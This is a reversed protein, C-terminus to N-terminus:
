YVKNKLTRKFVDYNKEIEDLKLINNFYVINAMGGQIHNDLVDEPCKDKNKDKEKSYCIKEKVHNLSGFQMKSVNSKIYINNKTAILKSNIFIDANSGNYNIVINNWKQLTIPGNYLVQKNLADDEFIVKIYGKNSNFMLIPNWNFNLFPIYDDYSESNTNKTGVFYFWSSICFKSNNVIGKIVKNNSLSTETPLLTQGNTTLRINLSKGFLLFLLILSISILVFLFKIIERKDNTGFISFKGPIFLSLFEKNNYILYISLGIISFFTIILTAIKSQAPFMKFIKIVFYLLLSLVFIMIGSSLYGTATLNPINGNKLSSVKDKLLNIHEDTYLFKNINGEAGKLVNEVISTDFNSEKGHKYRNYSVISFLGIIYYTFPFFLVIFSKLKNSTRTRSRYDDINENKKRKTKNYIYSYIYITISIYILTLSIGIKRNNNVKSLLKILIGTEVFKGINKYNLSGLKFSGNNEKLIPKTSKHLPEDPIEIPWVPQKRTIPDEFFGFINNSLKNSARNLKSAREEGPTNEGINKIGGDITRLINQFKNGVIKRRDDAGAQNLERIKSGWFPWTGNLIANDYNDWGGYLIRYYPDVQEFQNSSIINRNDPEVLYELLESFSKNSLESIYDIYNNFNVIDLNNAADPLLVEGKTLLYNLVDNSTTSYNTYLVRKLINEQKKRESESNKEETFYNIDIKKEWDNEDVVYNNEKRPKLRNHHGKSSVFEINSSPYYVREQGVGGRLQESNRNLKYGKEDYWLDKFKINKVYETKLKSELLTPDPFQHILLIIQQQIKRIEKSEGNDNVKNLDDILKNVEDINHSIDNEIFKPQFGIGDAWEITKINFTENIKANKLRKELLRFAFLIIGSLVIFSIIISGSKLKTLNSPKKM